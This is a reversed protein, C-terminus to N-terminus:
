GASARIPRATRPSARRGSSRQRKFLDRGLVKARAGAVTLVIGALLGPASASTALVVFNISCGGLYLWVGLVCIRRPDAKFWASLKTM